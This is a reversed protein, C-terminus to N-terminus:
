STSKYELTNSREDYFAYACHRYLYEIGRKSKNGIISTTFTNCTIFAM